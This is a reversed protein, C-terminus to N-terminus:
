QALCKVLEVRARFLWGMVTDTDQNLVKAIQEYGLDLQHRLIFAARHAEPLAALCNKVRQTGLIVTKDWDVQPFPTEPETETTRDAPGSGAAHLDACSEVVYESLWEWVTDGVQRLNTRNLAAFAQEFSQLTLNEAQIKDKCCLLAVAYCRELYQWIFNSFARNDGRKLKALVKSAQQDVNKGPLLAM